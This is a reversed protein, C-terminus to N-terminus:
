QFFQDVTISPESISPSKLESFFQRLEDESMDVDWKLFMVIHDIMPGSLHKNNEILYRYRRFLHKSRIHPKQEYYQLYRVVINKKQQIDMEM